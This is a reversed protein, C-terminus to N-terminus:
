LFKEQLSMWKKREGALELAKSNALGVHGDIRSVFVPTNESM